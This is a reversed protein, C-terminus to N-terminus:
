DPIQRRCKPNSYRRQSKCVLRSILFFFRLNNSASLVIEIFLYYNASCLYSSKQAAAAVSFEFVMASSSFMRFNPGFLYKICSVPVCLKQCNEFNGCKKKKVM